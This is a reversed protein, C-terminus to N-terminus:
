DLKMGLLTPLYPKGFTDVKMHGPGICQICIDEDPDFNPLSSGLPYKSPLYITDFLDCAEDSLAIDVGDNTLTQMLVNISHTRQLPLGRAILVAKLFKEVAQQAHQLTPNFLASQLLLQASQLNEEAYRLWARAEDSM